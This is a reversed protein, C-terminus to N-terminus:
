FISDTTFESPPRRIGIVQQVAVIPILVTGDVTEIAAKVNSDRGLLGTFKGEAISSGDAASVAVYHNMLKSFSQLLQTYGEPTSGYPASQDSRLDQEQPLQLAATRRILTLIEDLIEWQPRRRSGGREIEASAEAFREAYEAEWALNFRKRIPPSEIEIIKAIEILIKEVGGRDLLTAQFQSIPGSADGQSRFGVLSPAVRVTPDHLGKSLAGAEYNLWQSDQNEPTVVIIGFATGDLEEAIKPLSREGAGINKDSMFPEVSDFVDLLLEQWVAAVQRARSGSWSIFM